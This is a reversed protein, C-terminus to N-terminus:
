FHFDFSSFNQTNNFNKKFESCLKALIIKEVISPILFVDPDNRLSEETEGVSIGYMAVPHYWKMKDIDQYHDLEFPTWLIMEARVFISVIKPICLHVYAEKYANIDKKKWEDFRQLIQPLECYEEVVEDFIM